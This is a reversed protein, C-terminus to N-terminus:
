IFIVQAGDSLEIFDTASIVGKVGSYLDAEALGAMDFSMRCAWLEGGMDVIQDLFEGVPPVELDAIQRRMMKTAMRTMGPLSGAISPIKLNPAQPLHMATNGVMSFKLDNMRSKTVIDLGWFTFFFHTEIGEGLAANGMILAPYAMDLNGKSCIFTMKRPGSSAVPQDDGFAPVIPESM